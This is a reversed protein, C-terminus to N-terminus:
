SFGRLSDFIEDLTKTRPENMAKRANEADIDDESRSKATLCDRREAANLEVQMIKRLHEKPGTEHMSVHGNRNQSGCDQRIEIASEVYPALSAHIQDMMTDIRDAVWDELDSSEPMRFGAIRTPTIKRGSHFRWKESDLAAAALVLTVLDPLGEEKPLLILFDDGVACPELQLTTEGSPGSLAISLFCPDLVAPFDLWLISGDSREDSNVVLTKGSGIKSTVNMEKMGEHINFAGGITGTRNPPNEAKVKRAHPLLDRYNKLEIEGNEIAQRQRIIEAAHRAYFSAIRRLHADVSEKLEVEASAVSAIHAGVSWEDQGSIFAATSFGAKESKSAIADLADPLHNPELAKPARVNNRLVQGDHRIRVFSTKSYPDHKGKELFLISTAITSFPQFLDDPLQCVAALTHSLSTRERWKATLGGKSLMESPVIAALRGGDRLAEMGRDIFEEVKRDSSKRPFPPNMLVVDVRGKPFDQMPSLSDGLKIDTSGDGRIMMNAVCIAATDPEIEYGVVNKCLAERMEKRHLGETEVLRRMHAVFFGGTGCALDAVADKGNTRCVDVMFRAIHRPTFYRGITAGGARHFFIEYLEGLYDYEARLNTVNLQELINLIRNAKSQLKENAADISMSGSFGMKGAERFADSCYANVDLLVRSPARCLKGRSQWLALMFAALHAPRREDKIKAERLLRDIEDAKEALAEVPPSSPKYGCPRGPAAIKKMDTENPIWTIPRGNYTINFWDTKEDDWKSVRLKFADANTGALGIALTQIGKRRLANGHGQATSVARGIADESEEADIVALPTGNAPDVLMADPVGRRKGTENGKWFAAMLTEDDRHENKVYVSGRPPMRYDWGQSALLDALLSRAHSVSRLTSGSFAM